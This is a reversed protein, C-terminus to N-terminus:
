KEIGLKKRLYEDYTSGGKAKKIKDRLDPTVFLNVLRTYKKM